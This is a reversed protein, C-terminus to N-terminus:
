RASACIFRRFSKSAPMFIAAAGGAKTAYRSAKTESNRFRNLRDFTKTANLNPTKGIISFGTTDAFSRALIKRPNVKTERYQFTVGFCMVYNSRRTRTFNFINVFGSPISYNATTFVRQATHAKCFTAVQSKRTM